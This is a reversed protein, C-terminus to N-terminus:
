VYNKLEKRLEREERKKRKDSHRSNKCRVLVENIRKKEAMRRGWSM